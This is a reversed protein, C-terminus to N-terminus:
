VLAKLVLEVDEPSTLPIAGYDCLRDYHPAREGVLVFLLKGLEHCCQAADLTGVSNAAVEGVIVARSLGVILRNRGLLRGANVPTDPLNESVLGGTKTIIKALSQNEAPYIHNFGSPLVAYTTGNAKIAGMHGATDIGRALGGVISIGREALRRAIDVADAIGEASVDQSGIVALRPEDDAPLRGQYYLLLPPDNLENLIAPYGEDLCSVVKTDSAELHDIITQAKNLNNDAGCIAKARVPGIGPLEQLEEEEALLIDDVTPFYSLLMALTRPGVEGTMKLSLVRAPVSFPSLDRM